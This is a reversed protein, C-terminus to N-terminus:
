EQRAEASGRKQSYWITVQIYILLKRDNHCLALYTSMPPLASSQGSSRKSSECGM